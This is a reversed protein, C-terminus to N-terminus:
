ANKFDPNDFQGSIGLGISLDYPGIFIGDVGNMSVIEEINALCGETEIRVTSNCSGRKNWYEMVKDMPEGSPYDCGWGDKRSPCFGVAGIPSYKAWKVTKLMRLKEVFPIILGKAGVDLPKM